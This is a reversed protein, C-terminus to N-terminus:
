SGSSCAIAGFQATFINVRIVPRVKVPYLYAIKFTTHYSYLFDKEDKSFNLKMIVSFKFILQVLIKAKEVALM